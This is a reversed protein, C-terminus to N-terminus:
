VMNRLAALIAETDPHDAPDSAVHRYVIQGRTNIIFAGPLQRVDGVPLGVSHGQAVAALAKFTLIPSILKLASVKPLGFAQYLLRQPDSIMPLSVGFKGAFAASEEPTGMGVLVLRGGAQDFQPLRDRM